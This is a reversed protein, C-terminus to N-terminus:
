ITWPECRNSRGMPQDDDLMQNHSACGSVAFLVMIAIPGYRILM